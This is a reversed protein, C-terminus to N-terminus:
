GGDHNVQRVLGCAWAALFHDAQPGDPSPRSGNTWQGDASLHAEVKPPTTREQQHGNPPLSSIKRKDGRSCVTRFAKYQFSTLSGRALLFGGRRLGPGM